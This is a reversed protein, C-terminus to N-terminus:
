RDKKRLSDSISKFFEPPVQQGLSKYKMLDKLAQEFEKILFYAIARNYYTDTYSSDISLTRTFDAIAKDLLGISAYANGRNNYAKADRPNLEIARDFDAIALKYKNEYCYLIGRSNYLEALNPNIRIATSLDAIALQYKKLKTYVTARLNYADILFPNLKIARSLDSLANDLRNLSLYCRARNLYADAYDRNLMCAQELDQLAKEIDGTLFFAYGRNNYFEPKNKNLKIAQTFDAIARDYNMLTLFLYGRNNYTEALNPNLSIAKNLDYLAEEYRGNQAYLIGRNNYPKALGPYQKIVDSWLTIGNQWVMCRNASLYSFIGIVFILGLLLFIKLIKQVRIFLGFWGEAFIYFVGILPVYTYRDAISQGIPIIQLLPLITFLFFLSGFIIKRTSKGSIAVLVGSIIVILPAFLFVPSLWQHITEPGPYLCSLNIPLITKFLYFLLIRMAIVINQPLTSLSNTQVAGVSRQGIFALITFLLTLIFFPIKMIFKNKDLKGYHFYDILLLVAPLSIASPKSLLALLFIFLSIFYFKKKEKRLYFIYVILSSLFFLTYLVDKRETIWAVSEVHLPHIGFLLSTIASVSSKKTLLFIFWFVLTCNILHIILNTLHYSFPNSQSFYYNLAFSLITLPIYGGYYYSSFITLISHLTLSRIHINNIVYVDDDWNTFGNNICPLLTFFTIIIVVPVVSYIRIKNFSLLKM